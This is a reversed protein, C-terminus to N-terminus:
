QFFLLAYLRPINTKKTESFLHYCHYSHLYQTVSRKYNPKHSYIGQLLGENNKSNFYKNIIFFADKRIEVDSDLFVLIKGSAITAGKNRSVAAGSNKKLKIIKCSYKEAIDISEQNSNDSVAIVEYNKYKSKFISSLCKDFALLLFNKDLGIRKIDSYFFPLIVSIKYNM